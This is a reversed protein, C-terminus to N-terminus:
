TPYIMWWWSSIFSSLAILLRTYIPLKEGAAAFTDAIKPIVFTMLFAVLGTGVVSMVAPYILAATVRGSLKIQREMFAALRWLVIDLAGSSEGARVMNIVIAKFYRPYEALADALSSGEKVKERVKTCEQGVKTYSKYLMQGVELMQGVKTCGKDLREGVKTLGKELM